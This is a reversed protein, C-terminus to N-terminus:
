QEQNQNRRTIKNTMNTIHLRDVNQFYMAERTIKNKNLCM